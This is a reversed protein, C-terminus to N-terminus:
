ISCKAMHRDYVEHNEMQNKSETQGKKLFLKPDKSVTNHINRKLPCNIHESSTLVNQRMCPGFSPFIIPVKLRGIAESVIFVLESFFKRGREIITTRLESVIYTTNGAISNARAM